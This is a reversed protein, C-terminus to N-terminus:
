QKVQNVNTSFNQMDRNSEESTFPNINSLKDNIKNKSSLNNAIFDVNISSIDLLNIVIPRIKKSIFIVKTINKNEM